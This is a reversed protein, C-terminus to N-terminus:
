NMGPCDEDQAPPEWDAPPGSESSGADKPPDEVMVDTRLEDLQANVDRKFETVSRGVKHAVKPLRGGFMMVAIVALVLMEGFGLNVPM